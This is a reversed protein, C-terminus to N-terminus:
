CRVQVTFTRGMLLTLFLLLAKGVMSMDFNCYIMHCSHQIRWTNFSKWVLWCQVELAVALQWLKVPVKPQRRRRRRRHQRRSTPWSPFFSCPSAWCFFELWSWQFESDGHSPLWRCQEGSSCVTPINSSALLVSDATPGNLGMWDWEIGNLGLAMATWVPFTATWHGKWTCQPWNMQKRRARKWRRWRSWSRSEGCLGRQPQLTWPAWNAVSWRIWRLFRCPMMGILGEFAMLFACFWFDHIQSCRDNTM